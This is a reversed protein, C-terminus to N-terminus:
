YWFTNRQINQLIPCGSKAAEFFQGVIDLGASNLAKSTLSGKNLMGAYPQGASLSRAIGPGKM